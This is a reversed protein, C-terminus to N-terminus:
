DTDNMYNKLLIFHGVPGAKVWQFRFRRLGFQGLDVILSFVV